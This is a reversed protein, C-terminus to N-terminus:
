GVLDLYQSRPPELAAAGAPHTPFPFRPERVGAGGDDDDDWMTDWPPPLDRYSPGSGPGLPPRRAAQRRVKEARRIVKALRKKTKKKGV